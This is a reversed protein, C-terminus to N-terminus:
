GNPAPVRDVPGPLKLAGQNNPAYGMDILAQYTDAPVTEPSWDDYLKQAEEWEPGDEAIESSPTSTSDGTGAGPSSAAGSTATSSPAAAESGGEGTACS